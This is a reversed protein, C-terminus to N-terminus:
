RRKRLTVEVQTSVAKKAAARREAVKKDYYEEATLNKEWARISLNASCDRFTKLIEPVDKLIGRERIFVPTGETNMYIHDILPIGMMECAVGFRLTPQADLLVDTEVCGPRNQILILGRARLTRAKLLLDLIDIQLPEVGGEAICARGIERCKLDLALIWAEEYEIACFRPRFAHMARRSAARFAPLIATDKPERRHISDDPPLAFPTSEEFEPAPLDLILLPSPKNSAISAPKKDGEPRV